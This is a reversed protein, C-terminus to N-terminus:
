SNENHGGDFFEICQLTRLAVGYLERLQERRYEMPQGKFTQLIFFALLRAISNGLASFKEKDDSNPMEGLIKEKFECLMDNAIKNYLDIKNEDEENKDRQNYLM